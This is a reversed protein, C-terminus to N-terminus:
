RVYYKVGLRCACVAPARFAGPYTRHRHGAELPPVGIHLRVIGQGQAIKQVRVDHELTRDHVRGLVPAIGGEFIQRARQFDQAARGEGIDALPLVAVAGHELEFGLDTADNDVADVDDAERIVAADDVELHHYPRQLRDVQQM